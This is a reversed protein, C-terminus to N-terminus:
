SLRRPRVVKQPLKNEIVEPSVRLNTEFEAELRPDLSTSHAKMQEIPAIVAQRCLTIEPCGVM